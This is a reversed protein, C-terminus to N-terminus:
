QALKIESVAEGRLARSIQAPQQVTKLVRAAAVDQGALLWRAEALLKGSGATYGEPTQALWEANENEAPLALLSVLQRGTAEDWVRVLGDFSGTAVLKNNTSIAVAYVMTGVPLTRLPAGTAGDWIRATRDGGASVLRKGDKSYALEHVAIGHGGQTKIKDGTMPNWFSLATEFGSSVVQKADASWAVALVDQDMGGLTFVGKGTASDSVKVTRDKSASAIQRGDPSWAVAYVFDSHDILTQEFEGTIKWIRVTKDFSASAIRKGDPSFAVSFVVDGHGRMTMLLKGDSTQYIRLDGKGGPQGGAVALLTGDPSFKLDNVAGLVNTLVKSPEAKALDWVTVQGYTGSALLKNDPSFAVAAVPALPGVKLKLELKGGTKALTGAPATATTSLLVDLRRIKTAKKTVIPESADDPRKGEKAGTDIWRQILAIEAKALPRADLPMRKKTDETTLLQLLLSGESKGPEFIARKSGKRVAEYSDLSLGGSVDLERLNKASHCVTCHKRFLPRLDQWYTPEPSQASLQNAAFLM